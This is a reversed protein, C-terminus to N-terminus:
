SPDVSWSPMTRLEIWGFTNVVPFLHKTWEKIYSSTYDLNSSIRFIEIQMRIYLQSHLDLLLFFCIFNGHFRNFMDKVYFDDVYVTENIVSRGRKVAIVDEFPIMLEVRDFERQFELSSFQEDRRTEIQNLLQQISKAAEYASIRDGEVSKITNEFLECQDRVFILLLKALQHDFFKLVSM